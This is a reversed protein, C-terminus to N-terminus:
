HHTHTMHAGNGKLVAQAEHAQHRDKAHIVLLTDGNALANDIKKASEDTFGLGLFGGLVGGSGTVFAILPGSALLSGGGTLVGTVITACALVAGAIGGVKGSRVAEKHIKEGSVFKVLEEREYNKRDSVISIDEHTIDTQDLAEMAHHATQPDHFLGLVTTEHPHKKMHYGQEKNQVLNFKVRDPPPPCTM